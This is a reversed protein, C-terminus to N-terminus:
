EPQHTVHPPPLHHTERCGTHQLHMTVSLHVDAEVVAAGNGPAPCRSSREATAGRDSCWCAAPTRVCSAPGVGTRVARGVRDAGYRFRRREATGIGTGSGTGTGTRTGSSQDRDSGLPVSQWSPCARQEERHILPSVKATWRPFPFVVIFIYIRSCPYSCVKTKTKNSYNHETNDLKSHQWDRPPLHTFNFRQM